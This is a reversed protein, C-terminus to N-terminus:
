IIEGGKLFIKLRGKGIYKKWVRFTTISIAAALDRLALPADGWGATM